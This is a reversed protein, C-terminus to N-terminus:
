PGRRFITASIICSLLLSAMGLAIFYPYFSVRQYRLGQGGQQKTEKIKAFVQREQPLLSQEFHDIEQYISVLAQPDRALFFQGGTALAAQELEAKARAFQPAMIDPNINIVYLRIGAEKAGEVASAIDINRLPHSHDDPNPEQIGDTVLVIATDHITYAPKGEKVLNESFYKTAKILNVTKFLAYGIATGNEQLAEVTELKALQELVVQHDLTLPVMVNAIRAFSVLGILDNRHGSLQASDNGKIFLSTIQKLVDMRPLLIRKGQSSQVHMEERMSGSRDLVLYIAVGEAPLSIDEERDEDLGLDENPPPSLPLEMMLHPDIFAIIFAAFACGRLLRPLFAFHVRWSRQVTRFFSVDSYLFHPSEHIKKRWVYKLLGLLLLFALAIVLAQTDLELM